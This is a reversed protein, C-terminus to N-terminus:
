FTQLLEPMDVVHTALLQAAYTLLDPWHPVPQTFGGIKQPFLDAAVGKSIEFWGHVFYQALFRVQHTVVYMDQCQIVSAVDKTVM